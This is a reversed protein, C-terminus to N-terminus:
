DGLLLLMLSSLAGRVVTKKVGVSFGLSGEKDDNSFESYAFIVTQGDASLVGSITEEDPEGPDFTITVTGDPLISYTGSDSGSGENFTTSFTNHLGGDEGITRRLEDDNTFSATFTGNPKFTFNEKAIWLEDTQGWAGALGGNFGSEFEYVEYVTNESFHQSFGSGKKVGAGIGVSGEKDNDSFESYAFIVTQGDARLLGTITEQDDTFTISVTGDSSVSYTGIDTGSEPSFITTFTNNGTPSEEISRRLEDDNSYSGTFSGDAM